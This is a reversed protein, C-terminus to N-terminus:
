FCSAIWLFKYHCLFSSTVNLVDQVKLIELSELALISTSVLFFLWVHTLNFPVTDLTPDSPYPVELSTTQLLYFHASPTGFCWLLWGCINLSIYSVLDELFCLFPRAWSLFSWYKGRDCLSLVLYFEALLFSGKQEESDERGWVKGEFFLLGTTLLPLLFLFLAM